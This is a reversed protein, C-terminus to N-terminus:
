DQTSEQGMESVELIVPSEPIEPRPRQLQGAPVSPEEHWILITAVVFGVSADVVAGSAEMRGTQSIATMAEIEFKMAKIARM